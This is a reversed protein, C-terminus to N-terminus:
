LSEEYNEGDFNDIVNVTMKTDVESKEKLGLDRAVITSNFFGSAAGELKIQAMMEEAQIVVDRLPHDPVKWSRWTRSVVGCYIACGEVTPYRKRPVETVLGTGFAKTEFLPNDAVWKLYSNVDEQLAEATEYAPPRGAWNKAVEWVEKNLSKIPEQDAKKGDDNSTM